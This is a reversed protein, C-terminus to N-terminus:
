IHLNAVNIIVAEPLNKCSDNRSSTLFIAAASLGDTQFKVAAIQLYHFPDLRRRAIEEFTM